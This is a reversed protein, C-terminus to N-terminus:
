TLLSATPGPELALRRIVLACMEGQDNVELVDLGAARAAALGAQSDEIAIGSTAGLRRMAELYPEASPKHNTVDEGYVVADFLHAIGAAELIPEVEPKGSSTVLALKHQRAVARLLDRTAVNIPSGALMRSRFLDKKRPYEAYLLEVDLPPDLKACLSMLMPRDAVGICTICYTDWDLEIGFPQLIEKWCAYHTPESDVLVGDFDFLVAEYTAM